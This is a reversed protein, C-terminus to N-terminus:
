AGQNTIEDTLRAHEATGFDADPTESTRLTCRPVFLDLLQGGTHSYDNHLPINLELHM